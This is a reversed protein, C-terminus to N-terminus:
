GMQLTVGVSTVLCVPMVAGSSRCVKLGITVVPSPLQAKLARDRVSVPEWCSLLRIRKSDRWANMLYLDEM